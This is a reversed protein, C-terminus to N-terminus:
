QLTIDILDIKLVALYITSVINWIPEVCFLNDYVDKWVLSSCFYNRSTIVRGVNKSEFDVVFVSSCSM